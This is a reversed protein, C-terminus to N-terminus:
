AALLQIMQQKFIAPDHNAIFEQQASEVSKDPYYIKFFRYALLCAKIHNEQAKLSRSSCKELNLNKKLDQFVTEVVWREKYLKAGSRSFLPSLGNTVLYRKGHKVIQVSHGVGKLKGYKGNAGFFRYETLHRDNFLRNSKIRALYTWGWSGLLNLTSSAAYWADFLVKKPQIGALKYRRLAAQVLENKTRGGKKWILVDLVFSQNGSVWLVLIFCLGNLKKKENSSYQYSVGEIKRSHQKNLVTDDLVIYGNKPLKAWDTFEEFLWRVLFRTLVDHSVSVFRRAAKELSFSGESLILSFVYAILIQM